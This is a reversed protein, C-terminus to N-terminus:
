RRARYRGAGRRGSKQRRNRASNADNTTGEPLAAHQRAAVKTWRQVM